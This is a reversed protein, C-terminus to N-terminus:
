LLLTPQWVLCSSVWFEACIPTALQSLYRRSHSHLFLLFLHSSNWLFLDSLWSPKSIVRWKVNEFHLIEWEYLPWPYKLFQVTKELHHNQPTLQSRYLYFDSSDQDASILLATELRCPFWLLHLRWDFILSNFVGYESWSVIKVWLPLTVIKLGIEEWHYWRIWDELFAM